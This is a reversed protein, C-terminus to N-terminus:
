RGVGLRGLAAEVDARALVGYIAGRADLVLYESTTSAALRRLLDAGALDIALTSDDDVQRAVAAVSVWPRRQEPLASVAAEAVIGKPQGGHDVVVLARAGADHLRRVAEAVPMEPTVPIARRTLARVQLGPLQGRVRSSDLARGAGSWIFVALLLSWLGFVYGGFMQGRGLLMPVLGVLALAVAFGRGVWAAVVTGSHESRTAGWVVDRLMRGGDLPLGPLLNFVGVILNAWALQFVVLEVITDAPLARALVWGLAGVLLSTLPGVVAIVFDTGPRHDDGGIESVGGLVHLTIRNVPFGYGKAVVAHALEHALVSLGLLVAFSFAVAFTLGGALDPFRDRFLPLVLLAIVVSGVFWSWSVVVPVGFPRGLSVGEPTRATNSPGTMTVISPLHGEGARARPPCGIDTAAGLSGM